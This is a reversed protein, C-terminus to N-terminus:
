PLGEWDKPFFFANASPPVPAQVELWRV